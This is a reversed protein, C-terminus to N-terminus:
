AAGNLTQEIVDGDVWVSCSPFLSCGLLVKEEGGHVDSEIPWNVALKLIGSWAM